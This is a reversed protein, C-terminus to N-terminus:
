SFRLIKRYVFKHDGPAYFDQLTAELGYGCREYFCRTPHYRPRSSTEIYVRTGALKVIEEECMAMLRRGLGQGQADPHVAIWYLDFSSLTCPIPGFCGYGLLDNMKGQAMLFHYGSTEGKLRREQVLEVAVEVEAPSFFGTTKLLRAVEESDSANVQTRFLINKM